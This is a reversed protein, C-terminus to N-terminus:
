SPVSTSTWHWFDADSGPLQVTSGQKVELSKSKVAAVRPSMPKELAPLVAKM